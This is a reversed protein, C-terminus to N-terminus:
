IWGLEQLWVAAFLVVMIFVPVSVAVCIIWGFPVKRETLANADGVFIISENPTSTAPIPSHFAPSRREYKEFTEAPTLLHPRSM